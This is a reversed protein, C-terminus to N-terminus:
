YAKDHRLVHLTSFLIGIDRWISWGNLYELDANLRGALDSELETAGRLGRVQALGTLGPKLAHREWYRIDVEWFLKDGAQSGIAHPRPGVLSMNGRIVNILQPLEDISTRRIFRGVRTVRQDNRATSVTGDADGSQDTMSRFKFMVFFRNSRGLREQKFFIPRGDEIMIAIAVGILLPSLVVVATLAVSLDLLRKMARARIGLAGVSVLLWGLGGAQRAGQAGLAVVSEDILEGSVNAGKLIVAWLGRREPPCSIVVRDMNLLFLSIRHLAHPDDIAPKLRYEAASIVFSGPIDVPPGGDAIILQNIASPGCRWRIFGRVQARFWTQLFAAVAVGFTFGVRSFQQSSKAYFAIFVLAAASLGLATLARRVGTWPSRLADISYSGNYIAITLLIPLLLQALLGMQRYGQSGLYVEGVVAFSAFLCVIDGIMLLLYCQMRRRELSPALPLVPQSAQKMLRAPLSLENM